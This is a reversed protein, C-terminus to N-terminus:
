KWNPSQFVPRVLSSLVTYGTLLLLQHWTLAQKDLGKVGLEVLIGDGM